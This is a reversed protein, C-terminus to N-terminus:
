AYYRWLHKLILGFELVNPLVFYDQQFGDTIYPTDIVQEIDWKHINANPNDNVYALEDMSSIIGAGLAKAQGYEEILGFEATFWYVRSLAELGEETAYQAFLGLGILYNTIDPSWLMPLHGYFDHFLDREELYRLNEESRLRTNVNFIGRSLRRWFMFEPSKGVIPLIRWHPIAVNELAPYEMYMKNRGLKWITCVGHKDILKSQEDRLKNWIQKDTM